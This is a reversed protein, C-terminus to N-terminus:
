NNKEIYEEVSELMILRTIEKRLESINNYCWALGCVILGIGVYVIARDTDPYLLFYRISSFVSFTMGLIYGVISWKSIKM